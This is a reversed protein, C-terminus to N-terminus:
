LSCFVGLVAEYGPNGSEDNDPALALNYGLEIQYGLINRHKTLSSYNLHNMSDDIHKRNKESLVM